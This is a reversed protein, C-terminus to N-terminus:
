VFDSAAHVTSFLAAIAALALAQSKMNPSGFNPKHTSVPHSRTTSASPGPHNIINELADWCVQQNNAGPKDLEIYIPIRNVGSGVYRFCQQNRWRNNGCYDQRAAWVDREFALAGGAEVCVFVAAQDCTAADVQVTMYTASLFAVALTLFKM